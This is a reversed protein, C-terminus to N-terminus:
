CVIKECGAALALLRDTQGWGGALQLGVPLGTTAIPLSLAPHGTLNFPQTLRLMAARVTMRDGPAASLAVDPAGIPPAVIPLTPLVLADAGNLARAVAAHLRRRAELADVYDVARIEFGSQLRSRVAPTYSPGRAALIAAHWAAAEPLVLNVYTTSISEAGDLAATRITVGAETLRALAADFAARVETSLRDFYGELRVLTIAHPLPAQLEAFPRDTLAQWLWAADQVCAALPGVHDLTPSLPIVGDTPVEGLTPKLGVIGCAAAPIRISGGTDSGLSALGMGTAIAVASGGSSGGASRSGDRPHRVPGFASDESTTGLAFEHLNTKGIVVAGAARLRAVSLADAAAPPRDDLARSGATTPQGAVDILDKISIPVGHLPGRDVGSRREADARRAADRAGGADVLTFANTAANHADIAALSSDILDASTTRGRRIAAAAEVITRLPM